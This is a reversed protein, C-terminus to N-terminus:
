ELKGGGCQILGVQSDAIVKVAKDKNSRHFFLSTMRKREGEKKLSEM